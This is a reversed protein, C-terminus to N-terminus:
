PLDLQNHLLKDENKILHELIYKRSDHEDHKRLANIIQVHEEQAIKFYHYSMSKSQQKTIKVAEKFYMAMMEFMKEYITNHSALIILNHFLFDEDIGLKGQENALILQSNAEEIALLEENTIRKSALATGEVEIGRRFELIELLSQKGMILKNTVEDLMISGNIEKVVSGVGPRKEIIEKAALVSLAERVVTKSVNFDAALVNESPLKDGPKLNERQIFDVIQTVIEEYLNKKNIIKFSM